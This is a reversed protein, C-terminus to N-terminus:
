APVRARRARVVNRSALAAGGLLLVGGTFALGVVAWPTDDGTAAARDQPTGAPYDYSWYLPGEPYRPSDPAKPTYRDLPRPPAETTAPEKSEPPYSDIPRALSSPAAIAAIALAAVLTRVFASTRHM